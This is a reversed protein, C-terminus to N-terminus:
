TDGRQRCSTDLFQTLGMIDPRAALVDPHVLEPYSLDYLYNSDLAGTAVWGLRDGGDVKLSFGTGSNAWSGEEAVTGGPFRLTNLGLYDVAHLLITRFTHMRTSTPEASCAQRSRPLSKGETTTQHLGNCEGCDHADRM